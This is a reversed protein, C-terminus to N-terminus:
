YVHLLEQLQFNHSTSQKQGSTNHITEERGLSLNRRLIGQLIFAMGLIIRQTCWIVFTDIIREETLM